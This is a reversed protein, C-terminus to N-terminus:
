CCLDLLEVRIIIITLAVRSKVVKALCGGIRQAIDEGLADCRGEARGAATSVPDARSAPACEDGVDDSSGREGCALALSLLALSLDGFPMLDGFFDGFGLLLLLAPAFLSFPESAAGLMDLGARRAATMFSM